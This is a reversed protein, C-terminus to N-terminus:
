LCINKIHTRVFAVRVCNFDVYTVDEQSVIQCTEVTQGRRNKPLVISFPALLMLEYEAAGVVYFFLWLAFRISFEQNHCQQTRNSSLPFVTDPYNARKGKKTWKAQTFQQPGASFAGISLRCNWQCINRTFSLIGIHWFHSLFLFCLIWLRIKIINSMCQRRLIWYMYLLYMYM